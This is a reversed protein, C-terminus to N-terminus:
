RNRRTPSSSSGRATPFPRRRRSLRSRPQSMKGSQRVDEAVQAQVATLATQVEADSLATSINKVEILIPM